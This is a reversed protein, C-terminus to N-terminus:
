RLINLPTFGSFSHSNQSQQRLNRDLSHCAIGQEQRPQHLDSWSTVAVLLRELLGLLLHLGAQVRHVLLRRPVGAGGLEPPPDRHDVRRVPPALLLYVEQACGGPPDPLHTQNSENDSFQEFFLSFSEKM